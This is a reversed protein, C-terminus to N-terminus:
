VERIQKGLIVAMMHKKMKYERTLVGKAAEINERGSKDRYVFDAVYRMPRRRAREGDLKIGPLLEYVVQRQLGSIERLAELSLLHEYRRAEKVSDFTGHLTTVKRAGYKNRKKGAARWSM